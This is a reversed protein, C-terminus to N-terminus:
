LTMTLHNTSSAEDTNDLLPEQPIYSQNETLQRMQYTMNQISASQRQISELQNQCTELMTNLEEDRKNFWDKLM